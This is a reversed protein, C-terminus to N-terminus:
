GQFRSIQKLVSYVPPDPRIDLTGAVKQIVIICRCLSVSCCYRFATHMLIILIIIQTDISSELADQIDRRAKTDELTAPALIPPHHLGGIGAASKCQPALKSHMMTPLHFSEFLFPSRSPTFRAIECPATPHILISRILNAIASVPRSLRM